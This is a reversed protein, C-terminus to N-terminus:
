RSCAPSQGAGEVVRGLGDTQDATIYARSTTTCALNDGPMCGADAVSSCQGPGSERRSPARPPSRRGYTTATSARQRSISARRLPTRAAPEPLSFAAPTWARKQRQARPPLQRRGFYCAGPSKAEPRVRLRVCEPGGAIGAQKDISPPDAGVNGSFFDWGRTAPSCDGSPNRFNGLHYKGVMATTYGAHALARPLTVENPSVQGRPCCTRSSPARWAPACRTAALSSPPM